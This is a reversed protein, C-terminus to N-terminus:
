LEFVACHYRLYGEACYRSLLYILDDDDKGVTDLLMCYLSSFFQNIALRLRVTVLPPLILYIVRGSRIEPHDDGM